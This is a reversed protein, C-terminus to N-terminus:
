LDGDGNNDGDGCLSDLERDYDDLAENLIDLAEPGFQKQLTEGCGRIITSMSALGVHMVARDLVNQKREAVEMEALVAKAARWRELSPGDASAMALSEDDVAFGLAALAKLPNHSLGALLLLLGSCCDGLRYLLERQLDIRGGSGGVHSGAIARMLLRVAVEQALEGPIRLSGGLCEEFPKTNCLEPIPILLALLRVGCGRAQSYPRDAPAGM